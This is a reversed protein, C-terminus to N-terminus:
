ATHQRSEHLVQHQLWSATQRCLQQLPESQHALARVCLTNDAAQSVGWLIEDHHPWRPLLTQYLTKALARISGSSAGTHVFYLGAQHSYNEMQGCGDLAQRQPHWQINDRVLLTNAHQIRLQSSLHQFQWRENNLVRGCAMIEGLLLLCDDAMSIDTQQQLAAHQHMVLPHPLYLLCSGSDMRIRTHQQAQQSKAMALIHNFSQTQLSLATHKTLHIDIDIQDNALMGPSASMQMANLGGPWSAHNDHLTMLKLPPTFYCEDLVTRQQRQQTKIFLKSQM